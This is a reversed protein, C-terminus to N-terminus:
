RVYAKGNYYYVKFGLKKLEEEQEAVTKYNQKIYEIIQKDYAKFGLQKLVGAKEIFSMNQNNVYSAIESDYQTFSPYQEKILMAKQAKTLNLSNVYQVVKNKRSNNIAKGNRDYDATIKEIEKEFKKYTDYGGILKMTEYKAPNKQAYNFEEYSGYKKYESMDIDKKAVNSAMITKDEDSVDLDSIYNLKDEVSTGAASLGQRYERYETSNMDLDKMEDLKSSNISKYGSDIYDQAYKSSYQGFLGAKVKGFANDEASFRLNGSKTYSGAIPLKDDYMSLGKTTKKIQGWGTPLLWYALSDISDEGVDEWSIENGYNDTGGMLKKALTTGGKFAEGIPIRGGTFMSAFPLDNIFDGFVKQAREVITSDDDDDDKKFIKLLMDIPDIMVDSGTLSKMLNNFLYSAAFLQGLEFTVQLPTKNGSEIDIKNDHILSSWQNNVELQFQTLFGMTKSNFIEATAGKSRDGMIRAAFDDANKIADQESMGKHLNEFYKSRWIVNATFWDTGEMFIQGAKSIKQWPKMSLSDVNLLRSTLFDSKEIMGDDHIINNITSITGQALSVKQTKSAGQIMSAFNTLASRVNFGTMNSGVQSKLTNLATYVRRGFLREISRDLSNKKGAIINAQEDLWAAYRSLKNDQIDKIRDALEEDTMLDMNDLGHERGYTERVLRSLARLRQISETHYIVECAADIYKDIGTIADYTTKLGTRPKASAFYARGPKNFETLGNIDTPLDEVMMSEKNFPIGWQSFKDALEVFHMMYDQRKPIEDYGFEVLKENIRPLLDDYIQRIEKAANKIKQRDEANPVDRALEADGYPHVVNDRDVYQKEGYKQAYESFKSRSKIGLEKIEQKLNHKLRNKEAEQHKIFYSTGDNVIRGNEIGFVKENMRVPDTRASDLASIDKGTQLLDPTIGMKNLLDNQIVAKTRNQVKKDLLEETKILDQMSLSNDLLKILKDKM